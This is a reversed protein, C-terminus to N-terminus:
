AKGHFQNRLNAYTRRFHTRRVTAAVDAFPADPSLQADDASRYETRGDSHRVILFEGCPRGSRASHLSVTSVTEGNIQQPLSLTALITM